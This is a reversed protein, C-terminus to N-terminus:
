NSTYLKVFQIHYSHHFRSIYPLRIRALKTKLCNQYKQMQEWVLFNCVHVKTLAFRINIYALQISTAKSLPETVFM